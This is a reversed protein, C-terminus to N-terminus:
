DQWKLHGTQTLFGQRDDFLEFDVEENTVNKGKKSSEWNIWYLKAEWLSQANLSSVNVRNGRM